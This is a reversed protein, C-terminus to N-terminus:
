RWMVACTKIPGDHVQIEPYTVHEMKKVDFVFGRAGFYGVDINTKAGYASIMKFLIWKGAPYPHKVDQRLWNADLQHNRRELCSNFFVPETNSQLEFNSKKSFNKQFIDKTMGDHIKTRSIDPADHTLYVISTDLPSTYGGEPDRIDLQTIFMVLDEPNNDYGEIALKMIVNVNEPADKTCYCCTQSSCLNVLGYHDDYDEADSSVAVLPLPKHQSRDRELAYLIKYTEKTLQVGDGLFWRNPALQHIIDRLHVFGLCTSCFALIDSLSLHAKIINTCIVDAPVSFISM